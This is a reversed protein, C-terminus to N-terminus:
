SDRRRSRCPRRAHPTEHQAFRSSEFASPSATEESIRLATHITGQGTLTIEIWAARDSDGRAASSGGGAGAHSATARAEDAMGDGRRTHGHYFAGRVDSGVCDADALEATAVLGALGGGIVIVDADM